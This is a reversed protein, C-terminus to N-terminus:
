TSHRVIYDMSLRHMLEALLRMQEELEQEPWPSILEGHMVQNRVAQWANIHRDDITGENKLTKLVQVVGKTKTLAVSNLIRGRLSKDGRWAKIHKTM